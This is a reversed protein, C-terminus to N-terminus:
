TTVEEILRVASRMSVVAVKMHRLAKRADSQVDLPLPCNGEVDALADVGHELNGLIFPWEWTEDELSKVSV